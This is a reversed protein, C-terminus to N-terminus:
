QGVQLVLQEVQAELAAAVLGGLGVFQGGEGLAGLIGQDGAHGLLELRAQGALLPEISPSGGDAAGGEAFQEAQGGARLPARGLRLRWGGIWGRLLREAECCGDLGM